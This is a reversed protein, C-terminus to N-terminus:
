LLCPMTIWISQVAVVGERRQLSDALKEDYIDNRMLKYDM